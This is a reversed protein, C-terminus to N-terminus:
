TRYARGLRMSWTGGESSKGVEAFGRAARRRAAYRARQEEEEEEDEVALAVTVYGAVLMSGLILVEAM